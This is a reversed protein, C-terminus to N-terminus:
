QAGCQTNCGDLCPLNSDETRACAKMCANMCINIKEQLNEMAAAGALTSRPVQAQLVGYTFLSLILLIGLAIGLKSM